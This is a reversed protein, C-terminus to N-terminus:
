NEVINFFLRYFSYFDTLPHLGLFLVGMEVGGLSNERNILKEVNVFLKQV